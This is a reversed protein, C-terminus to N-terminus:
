AGLVLSVLKVPQSVAERRLKGILFALPARMDEAEKTRVHEVRNADANYYYVDKGDSVLLKGAPKISPAQRGQLVPRGQGTAHGGAARRGSSPQM